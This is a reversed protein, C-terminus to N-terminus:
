RARLLKHELLFEGVLEAALAQGADNWGEFALLLAADRLQPRVFLRLPESVAASDCAAGGCLM